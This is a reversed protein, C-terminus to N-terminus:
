GSQRQAALAAELPGQLQGCLAYLTEYTTELEPMAIQEAGGYHSQHNLHPELLHDAVFRLNAADFACGLAEAEDLLATLDHRM